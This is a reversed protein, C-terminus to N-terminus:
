KPRYSGAQRRIELCLLSITEVVMQRTKSFVPYVRYAVTTSPLQMWMGSFFSYTDVLLGQRERNVCLRKPLYSNSCM